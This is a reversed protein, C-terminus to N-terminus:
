SGVNVDSHAYSEGESQTASTASVLQPGPKRPPVNPPVDIRYFARFETDVPGHPYREISGPGILAECSAMQSWPAEDILSEAGKERGILGRM